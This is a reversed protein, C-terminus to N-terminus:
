WHHSCRIGRDRTEREVVPVLGVLSTKFVCAHACAQLAAARAEESLEASVAVFACDAGADRAIQHAEAMGFGPMSTDCLIVDWPGQRLAKRLGDATDVRQHQMALGAETLHRVLRAADSPSGELILVRLLEPM